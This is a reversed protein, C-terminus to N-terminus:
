SKLAQRASVIADQTEQLFPGDRDVFERPGTHLGEQLRRVYNFATAVAAYKNDDLSEALDDRYSLWTQWWQAERGAPWEQANLVENDLVVNADVLEARLIRSAIGGKDKTKIGSELNAIGSELNAQESESLGVVVAPLPPARKIAQKIKVAASTLAPGLEGDRREQIEAVVIGGFDSPWQMATTAPRRVMFTRERGLAGMFLGLEFLVNDRAAPMTKGKKQTLDDPTLVFAAFDFSTRAQDVLAYLIGEGLGVVDPWLTAEVTKGLAVYLAEAIDLGESSSGIFM